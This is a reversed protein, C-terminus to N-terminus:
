AKLHIRTMREQHRKTVWAVIADVTDPDNKALEPHTFLTSRVLGLAEGGVRRAWLSLRAALQEDHDTLPALRVRVWEGQGLDWDGADEEFLDHLESIQLLLDSFAGITVYTKVSREWWTGPRTRADLDDFLGSYEGAAEDLDLGRHEAWTELGEFNRFARASMRAHEIHTGISPAQDGDKALRTMAALASYAILGIVESTEVDVDKHTADM